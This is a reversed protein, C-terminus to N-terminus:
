PWRLSLSLCFTICAFVCVLMGLPYLPIRSKDDHETSVHFLCFESESAPTHYLRGEMLYLPNRTFHRFGFSKPPLSPVGLQRDTKNCNISYQYYKGDNYAKVSFEQLSDEGNKNHYEEVLDLWFQLMRANGCRPSGFVALKLRLGPPLELGGPTLLDIALLHSLAGGLSHGTLVLEAVDHDRLAKEVTRVIKPQIGQYMRWFGAHVACGGGAPHRHKLTGLDQLAQRVNSTGSIAVILQKTSPRYAVYAGLKAVKGRISSVLMSGELADYGDLPFDAEMLLALNEFIYATPLSSYAINAFQGLESLELALEPSAVDALTLTRPSYTAMIRSIWRFNMMREQSYM